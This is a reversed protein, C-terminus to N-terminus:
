MTEYYFIKIVLRKEKCPRLVIYDFLVILILMVLIWFGYIIVVKDEIM